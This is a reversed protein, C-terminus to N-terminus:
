SLFDGRDMKQIKRKKQTREEENTERRSPRRPQNMDPQIGFIRELLSPQPLEELFLPCDLMHALDPYLAPFSGATYKRTRANSGAKAMYSGWLPVASRSSSFPLPYVNAFHLTRLDQGYPLLWDPLTDWSGAM